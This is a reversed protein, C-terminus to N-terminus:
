PRPEFGGPEPRGPRPNNEQSQETNNDIADLEKMPEAKQDWQLPGPPCTPSTSYKPYMSRDIPAISKM